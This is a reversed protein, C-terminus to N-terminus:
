PLLLVLQIPLTINSHKGLDLPLLIAKQAVLIKHLSGSSSTQPIALLDIHSSHPAFTHHSLISLFPLCSQTIIPPLLICSSPTGATTCYTSLELAAAQTVASTCTQDMAQLLPSFSRCYLNSSHSPTLMFSFFYPAPSNLPHPSYQRGLLSTYLDMM